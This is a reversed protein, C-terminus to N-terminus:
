LSQIDMPWNESLGLIDVIAKGQIKEMAGNSGPIAQNCQCFVSCYPNIAWPNHYLCSYESKPIHWASLRSFILVGSVRTYRPGNHGIWVGNKERSYYPGNQISPNEESVFYTYKEDGFLAEMIDIDDIYDLDNIAIIYPLDLHGYKNAKKEVASRLPTKDDVNQFNTSYAGIPRVGPRGRAEPKKPTPEVIVKWGDFDFYWKPIQKDLGSLKLRFIEDPDLKELEKNLFNAMNRARPPFRPNGDLHLWLFFNQNRIERDLVDYVARVRANSRAEEVTEGSVITAELYFRDRNKPIVLFDPRKTKNPLAPHPLVECELRNLLEHLFLEFFAARFQVNNDTRFRKRFEVKETKPYKSFWEELTSRVNQFELRSSRNLFRFDPESYKAPESENRQFDDFLSSNM